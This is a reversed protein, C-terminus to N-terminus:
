VIRVVKGFGKGLLNDRALQRGRTIDREASKLSPIITNNRVVPDIIMRELCISNRLIHLALEFQGRFGYFGTMLVTKLHKHPCSPLVDESPEFFYSASQFCCMHLVLEELVPALELVYALRLIGAVNESFGCIDIKLVVHRLCTLRTPNKVFEQVETQIRFNISLSQVHSLTKVLEAFVYRVAEKLTLRSLISRLIDPPLHHLQLDKSRIAKFNSRVCGEIKSGKGSVMTVNRKVM